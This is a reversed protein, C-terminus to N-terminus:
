SVPNVMLAVDARDSPCLLYSITYDILDTGSFNVNPTYTLSIGNDITVSGSTATAATITLTDGDIDSDNALVDINVSMDESTTSNDINAVPIDNVASITVTVTSSASGGQDDSITYNILDTGSFNVNPAYSLSIGSAITVAGSTATATTATPTSARFGSSSVSRPVPWRGCSHFADQSIIRSAGIVPWPM